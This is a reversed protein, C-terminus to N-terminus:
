RRGGLLLLAAGIALLMPMSLTLGGIQVGGASTAAASAGGLQEPRDTATWANDWAPVGTTAQFGPQQQYSSVQQGTTPNWLGDGTRVLVAGGVPVAPGSDPRPLTGETIGPVVVCSTSTAYATSACIPLGDSLGFRM